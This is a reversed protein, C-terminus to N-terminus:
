IDSNEEERGQKDLYVHLKESATQKKGKRDKEGICGKCADDSRKASQCEDPLGADLDCRKRCSKHSHGASESVCCAKCLTDIM